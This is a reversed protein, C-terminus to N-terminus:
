RVFGEIQQAALGQFACAAKNLIAEALSTTFDEDARTWNRM